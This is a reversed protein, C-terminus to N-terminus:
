HAKRERPQQTSQMARVIQERAQSYSIGFAFLLLARALINLDLFWNAQASYFSAHARTQDNSFDTCAEADALSILGIPAELWLREFDNGLRAAQRPSLPRNGIWALEGRLISWLQPWRRLWGRTGSLEYYIFTDGHISLTGQPRPRVGLMPRLIHRGRVKSHLGALFAFPLTLLLIAAAALRGSWAARKFVSHRPGVPCLLFSDPVRICSGLPCNVLTSGFALSDRLETLRGLLTEPGVAANSIEAGALILVKNEIVVGPGVIAEAGIQVDEGIWCPAKLRATPSICSHLGVWVGPQVERVGIRDSTVARPMWEQLASLWVAYSGFLPREPLGPLFEILTADHPAPLWDPDDKAHYKLRAERPTLERIEPMVEVRLGWRSGDGVLARVQEPRDTALILVKKAGRALLDELWYELLSKGCLPLNSLPMAEALAAVAEREGPCILLAKM